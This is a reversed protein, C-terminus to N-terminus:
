FGHIRKTKCGDVKNLHSELANKASPYPNHDVANASGILSFIPKATMWFKENQRTTEIM